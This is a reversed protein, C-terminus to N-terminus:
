EDGTFVEDPSIAVGDVRLIESENASLFVGSIAQEYFETRGVGSKLFCNPGTKLSQNTNLTIAFCMDNEFCAELCQPLGPVRIKDVDAGYFDLGEYVAFRPQSQPAPASPSSPTTQPDETEVELSALLAEGVEESLGAFRRPVSRLAKEGRNIELDAIEDATFVYIDDATTRLMRSIVPQPTEFKSLMDLIDSVVLQARETSEEGGHFQHVGLEGDAKRSSGGFFVFACASYCGLEAPIYTKLERNFVDDALLLGAVVSGGNSALVLTTADPRRSIATRFDLPTQPTIEGSLFVMDEEGEVVFFSGVREIEQGVAVSTLSLVAAIILLLLHM